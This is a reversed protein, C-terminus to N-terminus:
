DELRLVLKTCHFQTHLALTPTDPTVAWKQAVIKVFVNHLRRTRSFATTFWRIRYFCSIRQNASYWSEFFFTVGQAEHRNKTPHATLEGGGGRQTLHSQSWKTRRDSVPRNYWGRIISSSSHPATPPILIPLPLRLVRLFGAGTGSQGGWIGCSRVQARVRTAATPFRRSVAQAIVRGSHVM